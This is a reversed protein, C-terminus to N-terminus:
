APSIVPFRMTSSQFTVGFAACTSANLISEKPARDLLFRMATEIRRSPEPALKAWRRAEDAQTSVQHRSDGRTGSGVVEFRLADPSCFTVSM